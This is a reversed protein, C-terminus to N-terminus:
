HAYYARHVARKAKKDVAVKGKGLNGSIEVNAADFLTRVTRGRPKMAETLFKKVVSRPAQRRALKGRAADLAYSKLLRPGLRLALGPSAFIHAAQPKGGLAVVFGLPLHKGRFLRRAAKKYPAARRAIEKSKLVAQVTETRALARPDSKAAKLAEQRVARWVDGQAAFNAAKTVALPAFGGVKKFTRGGHWRGREVCYVSLPVNKALPPIITDERIVRDQKGGYVVEGSVLYLPRRSRNQLVLEPVSGSGKREQIKVLGRKLGEALLLYDTVAVKKRGWVPYVEFGAERIPKGLRVEPRRAQAMGATMLVALAAFGVVPMSKKM